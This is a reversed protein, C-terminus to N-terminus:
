DIVSNFIIPKIDVAHASLMGVTAKRKIVTININLRIQKVLGAAILANLININKPLKLIVRL